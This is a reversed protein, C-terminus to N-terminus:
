FMIYEVIIYVFDLRFNLTFDPTCDFFIEKPFQMSLPIFNKMQFQTMMMIITISKVLVIKATTIKIQFIFKFKKTLKIQETTKVIFKTKYEIVFIAFNCCM